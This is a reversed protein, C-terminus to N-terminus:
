KYQALNEPKVKKSDIYDIVVVINPRHDNDKRASYDVSVITDMYYDGMDKIYYRLEAASNSAKDVSEKYGLSKITGLMTKPNNVKASFNYVKKSGLTKDMKTKVKIYEKSNEGSSDKVLKLFKDLIKKAEQHFKDPAKDFLGEMLPNNLTGELLLDMQDCSEQAIQELLQM